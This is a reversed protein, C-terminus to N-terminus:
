DAAKDTRGVGDKIIKIDMLQTIYSSVIEVTQDSYNETLKNLLVIIEDNSLSPIFEEGM